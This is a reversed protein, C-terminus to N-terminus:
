LRLIPRKVLVVRWTIEGRQLAENFQPLTRGAKNGLGHSRTGDEIKSQVKYLAQVLDVPCNFEIVTTPNTNVTKRSKLYKECYKRGEENRTLTQYPQTEPLVNNDNLFAFELDGMHRYCLIRGDPIDTCSPAELWVSTGRAHTINRLKGTALLAAEHPLLRIKPKPKRM